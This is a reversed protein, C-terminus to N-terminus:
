IGPTIRRTVHSRVYPPLWCVLHTTSLRRSVQWFSAGTYKASPVLVSPLLHGVTRSYRVGFFVESHNHRSRIQCTRACRGNTESRGHLIQSTLMTEAAYSKSVQLIPTSSLFQPIFTFSILIVSSVPASAISEATHPNQNSNQKANFQPVSPSIELINFCYLLPCRRVPLAQVLM